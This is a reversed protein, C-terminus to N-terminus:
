VFNPLLNFRDLIEWELKAMFFVSFLTGVWFLNRGFNDSYFSPHNKYVFLEIIVGMYYFLNAWFGFFVIGPWFKFAYYVTEELCTIETFIILLGFVGVILNYHLWKMMWWEGIKKERNTKKIFYEDLMMATKFILKM